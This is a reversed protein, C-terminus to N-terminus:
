RRFSARRFIQGRPQNREELTFPMPVVQRRGEPEPFKLYDTVPLGSPVSTPIESRLDLAAPDTLAGLFAVLDRVDEDSLFFPRLENASALAARSPRHRHIAFETADLDSRKPFVAQSTDYRALMGVPDAHHRIIGELTAYAGDHGWPGTVAVNRLTPTRFKYRDGRNETVRERGFDDLGRHGDEKGPGIQPIAIAHFDHDTQFKGSHCTACGARGYFLGMGRFATGDLAHRHGRLYLDFPSNDTRFAAAEFAALANAADVFTIDRASKIKGPYAQRFLQVYDSNRRLREALLEWVGGPGAFREAAAADAIPNEGEEGAMEVDSTVPLMAQVALVNDLGDPLQGEVPSRFSHGQKQVRGDYFMTVFEKAGLNFLPPANRPVRKKVANGGEGLNRDLGLGSAGEGVSLSLDDGTRVLPHHCTACSINRNGSLEKDFFLFRGLTVKHFDPRGGDHFDADTVPSPLAVARNHTPAISAGPDVYCLPLEVVHPSYPLGQGAPTYHPPAPVPITQCKGGRLQGLASGTMFVALFSLTFLRWVSFFSLNM